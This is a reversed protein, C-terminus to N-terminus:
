GRRRGMLYRLRNLHDIRALLVLILLDKKPLGTVECYDLTKLEEVNSDLGYGVMIEYDVLADLVARVGRLELLEFGLHFFELM